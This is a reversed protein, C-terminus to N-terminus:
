VESKTKLNVYEILGFVSGAWILTEGFYGLVSPAIEGVPPTYFSLFCMVVGSVVLMIAIYTKTNM